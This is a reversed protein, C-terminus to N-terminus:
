PLVDRRVYVVAVDDGYLRKWAPRQALLANVPDAPELITWVVGHRAFDEDVARADAKALRAYRRLFADGYMDARGDIYPKVGKFVLFGGFNYDNFVPRRAVEAPVSALATIPANGSDTRSAPWALRAATAALLLAAGILAWVLTAKGQAAAGPRNDLATAFFPALVLPAVIALVFQHRGHQLAMHLLFLLLALRLWPVRVGRSFGVFLVVLLAIEFPSIRSFDTPLWEDIFPLSEMGMLQFPFLIGPPGHPTAMAAALALVGFPGWRWVVKMREGPAAALLAELAFPGILALGLVYGGHMNAWLAMLLVFPLRPARGADRAALLESTWAVLVPLILVHPRALLSPALCALALTLTVVLSLGGLSLALRRGMLWAALGVAGAVLVAVGSWGAARHALAMILDSLWEHAHWPAGAMTHSFPDTKPVRGHALIWDGTALHWWTDPDNFIQPSALLFAYVLVAAILPAVLGSPATLTPRNM